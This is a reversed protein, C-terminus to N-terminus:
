INFTRLQVQSLDLLYMELQARGIYELRVNFVEILILACKRLNM